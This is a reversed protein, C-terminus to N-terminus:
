DRPPPVLALRGRAAESFAGLKGADFLLHAIDAALGARRNDPIANGLSENLLPAILDAADEVIASEIASAAAGDPTSGTPRLEGRQFTGFAGTFFKVRYTPIVEIVHGFTRPGAFVASKATTVAQGVGLNLGPTPLPPEPIFPDATM